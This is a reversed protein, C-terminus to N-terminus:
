CIVALPKPTHFAKVQLNQDSKLCKNHNHKQIGMGMAMTSIFGFFSDRVGSDKKVCGNHSLNRKRNKSTVGRNADIVGEIKFREGKVKENTTSV